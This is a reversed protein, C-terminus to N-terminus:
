PYVPNQQQIKRDHVIKTDASRNYEFRNPLYM